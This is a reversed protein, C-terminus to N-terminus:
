FRYAVSVFAAPQTPDVVIPSKKADGRLSSVAGTAGLTVKDNLRYSATLSASVDKLGGGPRYAALGSAAAQRADIGFYARNYAGDAWTASVSPILTLRQSARVPMALSADVLTGDVDGTLARTASLGAVLGGLRADAFIRAGAGGSLRGVGVPADRRRYGPVYTVGAGVSVAQGELLTAGVGKRTNVFYRGYKLDLVPFPVLRYDDAGQYAPAYIGAVGVVARNQDREQALAPAAFAVILCSLAAPTVARIM